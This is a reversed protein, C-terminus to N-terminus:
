DPHYWCIASPSGTWSGSFHWADARCGTSCSFRYPCERCGEVDDSTLDALARVAQMRPSHRWIGAFDQERLNGCVYDMASNCPVVDGNARIACSEMAASCTLIPRPQTGPRPPFSLLRLWNPFSSGVFGDYEEVL